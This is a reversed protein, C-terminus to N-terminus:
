LYREVQGLSSVTRVTDGLSVVECSDGLLINCGIGAALGASIDTKKDGILISSKLDLNFDIAAELIMGPNPKRRNDPKRYKGLGGTPHTPAFYVKSIPSENKEFENCMWDSLKLFDNETYYGRAIGAQNTVVILVYGENVAKRALSFIGEKFKFDGIRYVYGYDVNIVGDRDLFVARSTM